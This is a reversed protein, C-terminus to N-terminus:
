PEASRETGANEGASTGNGATLRTVAHVAAEWIEDPDEGWTIEARGVAGLLVLRLRDGDRKKDRTLADLFPERDPPSVPPLAAADRIFATVRNAEDRPLLGREASLHVAAAMGYGVAEGHRLDRYGGLQELAHGVTHGFNLMRRPGAEREDLMVVKSKLRCSQYLAHRLPRDECAVLRAWNQELFAFLVPDLALGMKLIELLGAVHDRPALTRTYAPNVFVGRPQHFAGILNKGTAHNIGVKGGVSSDAMSLTTTPVQYLRIGRLVTAAVFGAVDGTVGGGFAVV